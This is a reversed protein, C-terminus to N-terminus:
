KVIDKEVLTFTSFLNKWWSLKWYSIFSGCAKVNYEIETIEDFELQRRLHIQIYPCGGINQTIIVARKIGFKRLTKEFLAFTM